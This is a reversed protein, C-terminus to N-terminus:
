SSRLRAACEQTLARRHGYFPQIQRRFTAVREPGAGEPSGCDFPPQPDYELSLQILRATEDGALEAALTLAFDIGATVGWGSLRNRDRVAFSVRLV